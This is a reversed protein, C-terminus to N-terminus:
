QQLAVELVARAIPTAVGTGDGAEEVVVAIAYRLNNPAPGAFGHFWSHPNGRGTEATGTKGGVVAGPIRAPRAYGQEVSIVMMQQLTTATSPSVARGLNRPTAALVVAQTTPDVVREVIYPQPVEGGHAVAAPILAMQLATAQMQGQGYSTGAVAKRSQLFDPDVAVRSASIPIGVEAFSNEYGFRRAYEALKDGGVIFAGLQAFVVNLSWQYGETLTYQPGHGPPRCSRCDVDPPAGPEVVISGTDTFVSEPRVLGLDLGAALTVTKFTSGPPYVGQTARLLLPNGPDSTVAQWYNQIREYEADWDADPNFALGTPDFHPYSVSALIAGTQADLVVVGGRRAGLAETAAAQIAPDITLYLDNGVIPRHLLRNEQELLPNRGSRGSLYQDFVAELGTIGYLTPNYYGVLYSADPAPYTRRVFNSEPFVERGALEQGRANYIYGRQVRLGAQVERPNQTSRTSTDVNEGFIRQTSTRVQNGRRVTVEREYEGPGVQRTETVVTTDLTAEAQVVQERLLNLAVLVFGALLFGAMYQVNRNFRAQRDATARPIASWALYLACVLVGALALLWTTDDSILGWLVLALAVLASFPRLFSHLRDM